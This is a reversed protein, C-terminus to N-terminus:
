FNVRRREIVNSKARVQNLIRAIYEGIVGIALLNISGLSFLGIIITLIGRQGTPLFGFLVGALTFTIFLCSIASCLVGLLSVLRLPFISFSTIGELGQAIMNLFSNKSNGATRKKWVYNFGFSRFGCYFTHMRIFPDANYTKRIEDIVVKDVLQFDGADAPYNVDSIKSLLKYFLKRTVQLLISEERQSRMGYVVEYGEEWKEVFKPILSPPDQMDIPLFILVADGSASLIGNYANALIGFNRSNQILKFASDFRSIELLLAFSGDTSANDCVIHEFDYKDSLSDRIAKTVSYFHPINEKENYCPSVLSILKKKMSLPPQRPYQCNPHRACSTGRRLM